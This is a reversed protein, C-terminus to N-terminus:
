ALTVLSRVRNQGNQIGSNQEGTVVAKILRNVTGDASYVDRSVTCKVARFPPILETNTGCPIM